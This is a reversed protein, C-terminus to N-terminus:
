RSKPPPGTGFARWYAQFREGTVYRLRAKRAHKQVVRTLEAHVTTGALPKGEDDAPVLVVIPLQEAPIRGAPEGGGAEERVEAEPFVIGLRLDGVEEDFRVTFIGFRDGGAFADALIAAWTPLDSDDTGRREPVPLVGLPGIMLREGDQLSVSQLWEAV